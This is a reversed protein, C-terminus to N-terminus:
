GILSILNARTISEEDFQDWLFTKARSGENLDVTGCGLMGSVWQEHPSSLAEFEDQDIAEYVVMSDFVGSPLEITIIGVEETGDGHCYFCESGNPMLGTSGVCHPCRKELKGEVM